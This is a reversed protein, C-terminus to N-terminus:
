ADLSQFLLPARAYVLRTGDASLAFSPEAELGTLLTAAVAEPNEDGGHVPIKYFSFTQNLRRSFYIADGDPAWRASSIETDATVVKKKDSGDPRITWITYRRQNDNTIFTLLGNAPSWDIDWISSHVDQLSVTREIAGM